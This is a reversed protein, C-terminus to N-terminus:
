VYTESDKYLPLFWINQLCKKKISKKDVSIQWKQLEFVNGNSVKWADPM